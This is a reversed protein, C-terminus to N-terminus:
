LLQEATVSVRIGEPLAGKLNSRLDVRVVCPAVLRLVAQAFFSVQGPLLPSTRIRVPRLMCPLLTNTLKFWVVLIIPPLSHMHM